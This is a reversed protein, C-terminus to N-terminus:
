VQGPHKASWEAKVIDKYEVGAKLAVVGLAVLVGAEGAAFAAQPISDWVAKAADSGDHVGAFNDKIASFNTGMQKAVEVGAVGVGYAIGAAMLTEGIAGGAKGGTSIANNMIKSIVDPQKALNAVQKALEAKQSAPINLGDITKQIASAAAKQNTSQINLAM